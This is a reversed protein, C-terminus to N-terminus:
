IEQVDEIDWQEKVIYDDINFDDSNVIVSVEEIADSKDGASVDFSLQLNVNYYVRYNNV